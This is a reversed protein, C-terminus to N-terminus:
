WMSILREPWAVHIRHFEASNGCIWTRSDVAVAARADGRRDAPGGPVLPLRVPAPHDPAPRPPAAPSHDPELLNTLPLNESKPVKLRVERAESAFNHLSLVANNRWECRVALVNHRAPPWSRTRRGLRVRPMGQPHPHLARVPEAAVGPRAAPRRREGAPLRVPRRRHGAARDAPRHLLRRAQRATWQMPTRVAKRDPLDQDDGMGIEDGYRMVPTGPLSFMLSAALELRRPDGGVMSALRRRIGRGYLQMEPEPGFQQFVAQRQDETLRGLDLEDHSRLFIGWQSLEPRMRTADLAKMLPRCDGSALAYFMTQNVQFNLIMHMRDGEPGFYDLNEKPLINAEALLIGDGTRWQLFDHLERLYDFRM